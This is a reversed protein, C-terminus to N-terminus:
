AKVRILFASTVLLFSEEGLGEGRQHYRDKNGEGTQGCPWPKGIGGARYGRYFFKPIVMVFVM